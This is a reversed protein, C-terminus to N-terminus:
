LQSGFNQGYILFQIPWRPFAAKRQSRSSHKVCTQEIPPVINKVCILANIGKSRIPIKITHRAIQCFRFINSITERAKADEGKSLRYRSQNMKLGIQFM